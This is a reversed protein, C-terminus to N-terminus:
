LFRKNMFLLLDNRNKELSSFENVENPGIKAKSEKLESIISEAVDFNKLFMTTLIIGVERNYNDSYSL